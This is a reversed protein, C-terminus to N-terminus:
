FVAWCSMSMGFFFKGGLTPSPRNSTCSLNPSTRQSNCSATSYGNAAKTFQSLCIFIIFYKTTGFGESSMFENLEKASHGLTKLPHRNILILRTCHICSSAIQSERLKLWHHLVWCVGWGKSAAALRECQWPQKPATKRPFSLFDFEGTATFNSACSSRLTHTSVLKWRMSRWCLYKCILHFSPPIHGTLGWGM